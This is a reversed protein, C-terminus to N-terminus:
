VVGVDDLGDVEGDDVFGEDVELGDLPDTVFCCGDATVDVV